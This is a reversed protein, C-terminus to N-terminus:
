SLFPPTAEKAFDSAPVRNDAAAKGGNTWYRHVMFFPSLLSYWYLTLECAAVTDQMARVRHHLLHKGIKRLDNGMYALLMFPRQWARVSLMRTYCRSLGIGRCLTKLYQRTLRHSPIRHFVRMHPNYWVQWGAKQIHLVVELDEGAERKGIKQTLVLDTPVNDLWAQRRVVLGAGPPLVKKEPVYPLPESGRETLALLASIRDFGLPPPTEFEGQIRSGYVGAKPHAQGFQYAAAVWTLGPLNDDDLFGVLSSNAERIGRNRANGAGQRLELVYRLPRDLSWQAQYDRVVQATADSSNNDVVIVEWVIGRTGLQWALCDLVAPLRQAGNYTPIIVTFDLCTKDPLWRSFVARLQSLRQLQLTSEAM